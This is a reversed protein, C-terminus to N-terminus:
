HYFLHNVLWLNSCTGYAVGKHKQNANSAASDIQSSDCPNLKLLSKCRFILLPKSEETMSGIRLMIDIKVNFILTKMVLVELRCKGGPGLGKGIIPFRCM